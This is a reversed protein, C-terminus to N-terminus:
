FAIDFEASRDVFGWKQTNAVVVCPGFPIAKRTVMVSPPLQGVDASRSLLRVVRLRPYRAMFRRCVDDAQANTQTAVMVRQGANHARAVGEVLLYTTGSGPPAEVLLLGDGSDVFRAVAAEVDAIAREVLRRERARRESM